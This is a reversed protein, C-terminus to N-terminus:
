PVISLYSRCLILTFCKLSDYRQNMFTKIDELIGTTSHISPPTVAQGQLPLYRDGTHNLVHRAQAKKPEMGLISCLPHSFKVISVTSPCIYEMHYLSGAFCRPHSSITKQAPYRNTLLILPFDMTLVSCPQTFTQQDPIKKYHRNKRCLLKLSSSYARLQHVM